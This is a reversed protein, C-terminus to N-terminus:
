GSDSVHRNSCGESGIHTNFAMALCALSPAIVPAAIPNAIPRTFRTSSRVARDLSVGDSAQLRKAEERRAAWIGDIDVSETFGIEVVGIAGVPKALFVRLNRWYVEFYYATLWLAFLSGLGAGFLLLIMLITTECLDRSGEQRPWPPPESEGPYAPLKSYDM